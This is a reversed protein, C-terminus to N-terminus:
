SVETLPLQVREGAGDDADDVAEATDTKTSSTRIFLGVLCAAAVTVLKPIGADSNIGHLALQALVTTLAM